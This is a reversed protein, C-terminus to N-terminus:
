AARLRDAQANYLQAVDAPTVASNASPSGLEVIVGILVGRVEGLVNYANLEGSSDRVAATVVDSSLGEIEIPEARSSMCETAFRHLDFPEDLRLLMVRYEDGTAPNELEVRGRQDGVEHAQGTARYAMEACDSDATPHDAEDFTTVGESEFEGDPFRPFAERTVLMEETLNTIDGSGAAATPANTSSADVSSGDQGSSCGAVALAATMSVVAIWRSRCARLRM